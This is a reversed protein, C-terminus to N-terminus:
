GCSNRKIRQQAPVNLDDVPTRLIQTKFYKNIMNDFLWVVQKQELVELLTQDWRVANSAAQSINQARRQQGAM